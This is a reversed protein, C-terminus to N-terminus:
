YYYKSLTRVTFTAFDQGPEWSEVRVQDPGEGASDLPEEPDPEMFVAFTNRAIGASSPGVAGRVCHPTAVLHGGSHIQSTEGIQFALCNAPISVKLLQKGRTRIYLGADPDPCTVVDTGKMYMASTLGTLSGHDLHWGCWTDMSDGEPLAGDPLPFYHLLRGKYAKAKSFIGSIRNGTYNPNQAAAYTDLHKSLLTGVGCILTGLKLFAPGLEPLAEPWINPGYSHPYKKILAADDTCRDYMPNAYYSGKATDVKGQFSEKGHSWGFSYKTSPDVCKAKSEEPLEAFRSALPLLEKRLEEYGPVNKV